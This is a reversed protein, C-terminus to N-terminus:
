SKKVSPSGVKRDELAREYALPIRLSTTGGVLHKTEYHRLWASSARRVQVMRFLEILAVFKMKPMKPNEAIRGGSFRAGAAGPLFGNTPPVYTSNQASKAQWLQDDAPPHNFSEFGCTLNEFPKQITKASLPKHRSSNAARSKIGPLASLFLCLLCARRAPAGEGSVM